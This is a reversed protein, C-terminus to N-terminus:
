KGSEVGRAVIEVRRNQQRGESTANTAAPQAEGIPHLSIRNEDLKGNKVLWNRVAEARQEALEKNYGASGTADTFGYVRIEGGSYRKNISNVIQHLNPEATTRVASKGEDFLINEGLGYIGYNSNGRVNISTDTIEEYNVAPGNFNVSDWGTAANSTPGTMSVTDTGTASDTRDNGCGRFLFFLLALAGLALLIWPLISGKKKPQVDLDAMIFIKTENDIDIYRTTNIFSHWCGFYIRPKPLTNTSQV